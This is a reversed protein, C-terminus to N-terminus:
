NGQYTGSSSPILLHGPGHLYCKRLKSFKSLAAVASPHNRLNNDKLLEILHPVASEM